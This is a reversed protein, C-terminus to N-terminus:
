REGRTGAFAVKRWFFARGSRRRAPASRPVGWEPSIDPPIPDTETPGARRPDGRVRGQLGAELISATKGRSSTRLRELIIWSLSSGSVERRKLGQLRKTFPPLPYKGKRSPSPPGTRSNSFPSPPRFPLVLFPPFACLPFESVNSVSALVVVRLVDLHWLIQQM